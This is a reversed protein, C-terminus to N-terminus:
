SEYVGLQCHKGQELAEKTGDLTLNNDVIVEFNLKEFTKTLTEVDKGTGDRTELKM